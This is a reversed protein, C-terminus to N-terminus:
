WSMTMINSQIPAKINENGSYLGSLSKIKLQYNRWLQQYKNFVDEYISKSMNWFQKIKKRVEIELTIDNEASSVHLMLETNNKLAGATFNASGILIDWSDDSWFLYIKPHFVGNPQMVFHVSKSHLFDRLVNSNTQYFHTGIVSNKIKSKNLCLKKYAETESSAWATAFSINSHLNVLKILKKNLEEGGNVLNMM